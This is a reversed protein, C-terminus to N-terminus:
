RVTTGEGNARAHAYAPSCVHHLATSCWFEGQQGQLASAGATKSTKADNSSTSTHSHLSGRLSVTVRQVKGLHHVQQSGRPARWIRGLRVQQGVICGDAGARAHAMHASSQPQKMFHYTHRLVQMDDPQPEACTRQMTRATSLLGFCCKQMTSPMALM